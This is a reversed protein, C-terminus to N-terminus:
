LLAREAPETSSIVAVHQAPAQRTRRSAWSRARASLTTTLAELPGSGATARWALGILLAGVVQLLCCTAADYTDYGSNIFMIHATYLTLTMSGAAALPAQIGTTILRLAPLTLHSALLMVGLVAIATGTTSLLDFPTSTHAANTAVVM